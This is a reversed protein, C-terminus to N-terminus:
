RERLVAGLVLESMLNGVVTPSYPGEERYWQGLQNAMAFLSNIYIPIVEDDVSIEGAARAAHFLDDYIKNYERRDARIQRGRSGTLWKAEALFVQIVDRHSVTYNAQLAVMRRLKTAFDLEPDTAIARAQAILTDLAGALVQFLLDEKSEIWHYLSAKHIGTEEAIAGMSTGHFGRRSFLRAAM